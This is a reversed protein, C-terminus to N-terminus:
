IVDGFHHCYYATVICIIGKGSIPSAGDDIAVNKIDSDEYKSEMSALWYGIEDQIQPLEPLKLREFEKLSQLFLPVAEGVKGARAMITANEFLRGAEELDLIYTDDKDTSINSINNFSNTSLLAEMRPVTSIDQHNMDVSDLAQHKVAATNDLGTSSSDSKRISDIPPM